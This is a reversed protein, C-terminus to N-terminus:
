LYRNVYKNIEVKSFPFSIFENIGNKKAVRVIDEQDIESIIPSESAMTKLDELYQFIFNGNIVADTVILDYKKNKLAMQVDDYSNSIKFITNVSSLMMQILSSIGVDNNVILINKTM